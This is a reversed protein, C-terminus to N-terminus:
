ATFVTQCAARSRSKDSEVEMEIAYAAQASKKAWKAMRLALGYEDHLSAASYATYGRQYTDIYIDKAEEFIAKM